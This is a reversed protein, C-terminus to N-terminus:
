FSFGAGIPCTDRQHPPLPGGPNPNCGPEPPEPTVPGCNQPPGGGTIGDTPFFFEGTPITEGTLVLGGPDLALLDLYWLDTFDTSYILGVGDTIARASPAFFPGAGITAADGWTVGDFVAREFDSGDPGYLVEFQAGNAYCALGTIAGTYATTEDFAPIDASAAVSVLVDLVGLAEEPVAWGPSPYAVAIDSGNYAVSALGDYSSTAVFDADGGIAGGSELVLTHYIEGAGEAVDTGTSLFGHLRGGDGRAIGVAEYVQGDVQGDVEVPSDFTGLADDIRYIDVRAEGSGNYRYNVLLGLYGDTGHEIFLVPVSGIQIEDGEASLLDFDEADVDFRAARMKKAADVYAVYLYPSAPFDADACVGFGSYYGTTEAGLTKTSGVQAWTTGGDASKFAGIVESGFTSDTLAITWLAGDAAEYPGANGWRLLPGASGTIQFPGAM